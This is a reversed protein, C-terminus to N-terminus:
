QRSEPFQTLADTVAQPTAGRAYLAGLFAGIYGGGSVTSLYDIRPLVGSRALAQVLGLSFTASRIGGGSLALGVRPANPALSHPSPLRSRRQELAARERANLWEPYAQQEASLREDAM